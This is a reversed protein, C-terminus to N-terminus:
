LIRKELEDIWEIPIPQEATSYRKMAEIIAIIRETNCQNEFVKEPKLGLPPINEM